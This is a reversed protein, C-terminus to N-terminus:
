CIVVGVEAVPTVGLEDLFVRQLVVHGLHVAVLWVLTVVALGGEAVLTVQGAVLGNVGTRSKKNGRNVMLNMDLFKVTSQRSTQNWTCFGVVAVDAAGLEVSRGVELRM